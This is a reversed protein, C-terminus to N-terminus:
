LTEKQSTKSSIDDVYNIMKKNRLVLWFFDDCTADQGTTISMENIFSFVFDSFLLLIDWLLQLSNKMFRNKKIKLTFQKTWKLQRCCQSQLLIGLRVGFVEPREKRGASTDKCLARRLDRYTEDDDLQWHVTEDFDDERRNELNCNSWLSGRRGDRRTQEWFLYSFTSLMFLKIARFYFKQNQQPNQTSQRIFQFNFHGFCYDSQSFRRYFSVDSYNLLNSFKSTLKTTGHLSVCNRSKFKLLKKLCRESPSWNQM